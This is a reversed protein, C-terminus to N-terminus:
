DHRFAISVAGVPELAHGFDTDGADLMQPPTISGTIIIDGPRLTEGYAALTAAVHAVIDVVKGTLAEPDTTSNILAGRRTVRSTLNAISGGARTKDGIIVHRQFVGDDLIVDLNDPTPLVDMDAIEIAPMIEKIAARVEDSSAGPKPTAAMRVAIEPEAVPRTYGKLSATGGSAILASQMLYGVIPAQLGLKEMMAPAGLGVKWGLPKEGAAIRARRKALQLPMGKKILPHDFANM